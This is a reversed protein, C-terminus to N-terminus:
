RAEKNSSLNELLKFTEPNRSIFKIIQDNNPDAFYMVTNTGNVKFYSLLAKIIVMTFVVLITSLCLQWVIDPVMGGDQQRKASDIQLQMNKAQEVQLQGNIQQNKVNAENLQRKILDIGIQQGRIETAVKSEIESMRNQQERDKGNVERELEKLKDKLQNNRDTTPCGFLSFIVYFILIVSLFNRISKM